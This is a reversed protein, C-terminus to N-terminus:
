IIVLDNPTALHKLYIILSSMTKVISSSQHFSLKVSKARNSAFEVNGENTIIVKGNLLELELETAFEFYPSKKKSIEKLNEAVKLGDRIPQPYRTSRKFLVEFPNIDKKNASLEKIMDIRELNTISLEDSFTYISNREVPLITSSIIP